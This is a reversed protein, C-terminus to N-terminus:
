ERTNRNRAIDLINLLMYLCLVAPVSMRFQSVFIMHLVEVVMILTVFAASGVLLIGAIKNDHASLAAYVLLGVGVFVAIADIGDDNMLSVYEPPWFFYRPMLWLAGGLLVMALGLNSYKSNKFLNHILRKM